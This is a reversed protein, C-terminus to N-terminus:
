KVVVQEALFLLWNILDNTEFFYGTKGFLRYLVYFAM